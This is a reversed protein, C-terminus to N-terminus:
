SEIGSHIGNMNMSQPNTITELTPFLWISFSLFGKAPLRGEMILLTEGHQVSEDELTMGDLSLQEMPEGCWNTKRLHWADGTHFM